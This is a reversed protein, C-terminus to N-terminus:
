PFHFKSIKSSVGSLCILSTSCGSMTMPDIRLQPGMSSYRTGALAGRSIYQETQPITCIFSGMSSIPFLLGHPLLTNGRESDSHNKVM